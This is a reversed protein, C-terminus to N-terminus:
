RYSVNRCKQFKLAFDCKIQQLLNENKLKNEYKRYLLHSTVIKGENGRVNQKTENSFKIFPLRSFSVFFALSSTLHLKLAPVYSIKSCIEYPEIHKNLKRFTTISM